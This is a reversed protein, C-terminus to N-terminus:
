YYLQCDYGLQELEKEIEEFYMSAIVVVPKMPGSNALVHHNTIPVPYNSADLSAHNKDIFANINIQHRAMLEHLRHGYQGAGWIFIPHGEKEVGRLRELFTSTVSDQLHDLASSVEGKKSLQSARKLCRYVVTPSTQITAQIPFFVKLRWFLSKIDDAVEGAKEEPVQMYFDLSSILESVVDPRCQRSLETRMEPSLTKISKGDFFHTSSNEISNVEGPGLTRNSKATAGFTVETWKGGYGHIPHFLACAQSADIIQAGKDLAEHLMWNDWQPRGVSFAPFHTYLDRSYVFMDIAYPHDWSGSTRRLADLRTEYNLKTFEIEDNLPINYRRATLLAQSAPTVWNSFAEFAELFVPHLLIDSNLYGLFPKSSLETVKGFIDGILPLGEENRAVVPIHTAGIERTIDAVGAENGFVVVDIGLAAWSRLANKQHVAALGTFPKCTTFLTLPYSKQYM